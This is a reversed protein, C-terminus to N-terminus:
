LKKYELRNRELITEADNMDKESVDIAIGSNDSESRNIEISIRERIEMDKILKRLDEENTKRETVSKYADDQCKWRKKEKDWEVKPVLRKLKQDWRYQLKGGFFTWMKNSEIDFWHIPREIKKKVVVRKNLFPIFITKTPM